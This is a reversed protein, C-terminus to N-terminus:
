YTHIIDLTDHIHGFLHQTIWLLDRIFNRGTVDARQYISPLWKVYSERSVHLSVKEGMYVMLGRTPTQRLVTDRDDYSEEFLVADVKLGMNEVILQAKRLPLGQVDPMKILARREQTM